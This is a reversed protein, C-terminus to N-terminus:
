KYKQSMRRRFRDSMWQWPEEVGEGTLASCPYVAFTRPRAAMEKELELTHIIRELTMAETLDQKNALFLFASDEPAWQIVNKLWKGANEVKSRDASDFVFVIGSADSVFPKWLSTPYTAQGGLDAAMVEIDGIKLTEINMGMTPVTELDDDGKLRKVLTTKGANALGVFAIQNEIERGFLKTPM